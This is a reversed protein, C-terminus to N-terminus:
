RHTMKKCPQDHSATRVRGELAIELTEGAEPKGTHHQDIQEDTDKPRGRQPFAFLGGADTMFHVDDVSGGSGGWGALIGVRHHRSHVQFPNEVQRGSGRAPTGIEIQPEAPFLSLTASGIEIQRFDLQDITFDHVLALDAAQFVLGALAVDQVTDLGDDGLVEIGRSEGLLVMDERQADFVPVMLTILQM